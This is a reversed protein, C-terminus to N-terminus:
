GFIDISRHLRISLFLQWCEATEDRYTAQSRDLDFIIIVTVVIFIVIIFHSTPFPLSSSASPVSTVNFFFFHHSGNDTFNLVIRLKEHILHELGILNDSTEM